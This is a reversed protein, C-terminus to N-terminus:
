RMIISSESVNEEIPVNSKNSAAMPSVGGKSDEEACTTGNCSEDDDESAKGEEETMVKLM